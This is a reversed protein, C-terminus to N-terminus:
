GPHGELASEVSLAVLEADGAEVAQAPSRGGFRPHPTQMWVRRHEPLFMEDLLESLRAIPLLGAQAGPSDPTASLEQQSVGSARALAALSFGTAEAIRRADLRGTQPDRLEPAVIELLDPGRSRREEAGPLVAVAADIAADVERLASQSLRASKRVTLPRPTAPELPPANTLVLDYYYLRCANRLRWYVAEVNDIEDRGLFESAGAVRAARVAEPSEEDLVVIVFKQPQRERAIRVLRTVSSPTASGTLTLTNVLVVGPANASHTGLRDAVSYRFSYDFVHLTHTSPTVSHAVTWHRLPKALSELLAALRVVEPTRHGVISLDFADMAFM